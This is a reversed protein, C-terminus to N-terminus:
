FSSANEAEKIRSEAEELKESAELWEAEVKESAKSLEGQERLLASLEEKRSADYIGSDSLATEIEELRASAANM